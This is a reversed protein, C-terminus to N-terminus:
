PCKDAPGKKRVGQGSLVNIGLAADSSAESANVQVPSQYPHGKPVPTSDREDANRGVPAAKCVPLRQGLDFTTPVDGGLPLNFTM